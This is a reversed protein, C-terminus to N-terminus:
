FDWFIVDLKTFLNCIFVPLIIILYTDQIHYYNM